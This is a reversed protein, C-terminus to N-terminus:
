YGLLLFFQSRNDSDGINSCVSVFLILQSIYVGYSPSCPVDCDVIPFNTIIGTKKKLFIPYILKKGFDTRLRNTWGDTSLFIPYKLNKFNRVHHLPYQAVNLTVKLGLYLDFLTNEQVHM